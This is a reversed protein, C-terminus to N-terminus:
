KKGGKNIPKSQPQPPPQPRKFGVTIELLKDDANLLKTSQVPKGEIRDILANSASVNGARAEKIMGLVIFDMQTLKAGKPVLDGIPSELTEEVALWYAITTKANPRGKPYGKPNTVVGPKFM